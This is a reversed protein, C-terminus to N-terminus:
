LRRNEMFSKRYHENLPLQLLKGNADLINTSVTEHTYAVITRVAIITQRNIRIFEKIPLLRILEDFSINKLIIESSNKMFAKKDRKDNDAVTIYLLDDYNLLTKGRNSNLKVFTSIPKKKNDVFIKAKHFAKELRDRQIPKRVYDIAELDFAEAAYQKYATCFIIAKGKLIKAVDLGNVGPMEIDLVCVDFDLHGVEKLLKEPNNFARVVEVDEIQECLRRIYTLGPLEDDLLVCKLM